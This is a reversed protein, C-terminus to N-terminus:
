ELGLVHTMAYRGAPRGLLWLAARVAGRAFIERGEARHGGSRRHADIRAIPAAPEHRAGAAPEVVDLGDVLPALSERRRADFPRM